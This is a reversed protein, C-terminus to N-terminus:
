DSTKEGGEKKQERELLFSPLLDCVTFFYLEKQLWPQHGGMSIQRICDSPFLSLFLHAKKGGQTIGEPVALATDGSVPTTEPCLNSSGLPHKGKFTHNM